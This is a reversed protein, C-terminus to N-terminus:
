SLSQRQRRRPHDALGQSIEAWRQLTQALGIRPSVAAILERYVFRM